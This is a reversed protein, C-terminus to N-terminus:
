KSVIRPGRRLYYAGLLLLAARRLVSGLQYVEACALEVNKKRTLYAIMPTDSPLEMLVLRFM